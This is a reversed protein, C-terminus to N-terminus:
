RTYSVTLLAFPVELNGSIVYQGLWFSLGLGVGRKNFDLTIHFRGYEFNM